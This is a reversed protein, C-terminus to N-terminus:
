LTQYHNIFKNVLQEHLIGNSVLIGNQHIVEKQNYILENGKLDTMRGGAEFIMIYAAATDWEKMKNNSKFYFEAKHECIDGVKLGASGKQTIKKVNISSLFQQDKEPFDSKSLIAQAEELKNISSVNLRKWKNEELKYCGQSKQALYLKKNTPQYVIGLIPKNKEVLAVMISFEGNKKIFERTGDLPDIIWVRQKNLREFTDKTEESLIPYSKKKLATILIKNSELDAKTVPEQEAKMMTIFDKSYIQLIAEAAKLTADLAITTEEILNSFPLPPYNHTM